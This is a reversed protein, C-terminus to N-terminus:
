KLFDHAQYFPPHKEALRRLSNDDAMMVGTAWEMEVPTLAKAMTGVKDLLSNDEPNRLLLEIEYPSSGGPLPAAPARTLIWAARVNPQKALFDRLPGLYRQPDGEPEFNAQQTPGEYAPKPEPRSLLIKVM